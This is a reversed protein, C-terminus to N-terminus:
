LRSREIYFNQLWEANNKIDFGKKTIEESRDKREYTDAAKVCHEAWQTSTLALPLFDIAGPIIAVEEPVGTSTIIKLGSTQAEIMAVSFGEFFSPFLFMDMGQLLEYIDSRSGLFQVKDEIGLFKVKEKILQENEGGSGVLVLLSNPKLRLIELFIELLFSHNKQYSFRSINGIIFNNNWNFKERVNERVGDELAFQSTNIANKIFVIDKTAQKGFLWQGAEIGCCFKDTIYPRILKKLAWRVAMELNVGNPTNHSHAIITPIGRRHAEKYIFYATEGLHGHVVRYEDHINFFEHAQKKLTVFNLPHFPAMRYIRGGLKEIEDEYAGRQPRHVIFDFQVKTCDMNRYYNMVMTEAGGRNLIAFVMLVRIPENQQM